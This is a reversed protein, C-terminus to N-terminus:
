SQVQELFINGSGCWHYTQINMSPGASYRYALDNPCNNDYARRHFFCCSCGTNLLQGFSQRPNGLSEQNNRPTEKQKRSAEQNVRPMKKSKRSTEQHKGSTEYTSGPMGQHKGIYKRSNGPTEQNSQITEWINGATRQINGIDKRTIETM